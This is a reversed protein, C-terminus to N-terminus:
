GWSISRVISHLWGLRRGFQPAAKETSFSPWSRMRTTCSTSRRQLSFRRSITSAMRRATDRLMLQRQVADDQNLGTGDGSRELALDLPVGTAVTVERARQRDHLLPMRITM